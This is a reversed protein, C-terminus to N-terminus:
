NEKVKTKHPSKMIVNDTMRSQGQKWSDFDILAQMCGWETIKKSLWHLNVPKTLYDNCGSILAKRKDDISNSATLAVIIVPANNAKTKKKECDRIQKAAEIGSLVPLQLDMFILHLGGEKWKDVAEKGNKAIKYSIKHKRLFSGLIAQNIVNDEVILVNIKPFVKESTNVNNKDPNNVGITENKIMKLPMPFTTSLPTPVNSINAYKGLNGSVTNENNNNNPINLLMNQTRFPDNVVPKRIETEPISPGVEQESLARKTHVMVPKTDRDNFLVFENGNDENITDEDNGTSAWDNEENKNYYGKPLLLVGQKPYDEGEEENLSLQNADSEIEDGENIINSEIGDEEEGKEMDDVDVDNNNAYHPRKHDNSPSVHNPVPALLNNDFLKNPTNNQFLQDEKMELQITSSEKKYLKSNMNTIFHNRASITSNFNGNGLSLDNNSFILLPESASQQGLSGFLELYIESILQDPDFVIRYTNDNVEQITYNLPKRLSPHIIYSPSHSLSLKGGNSGSNSNIGTSTNSSNYPITLPPLFMPSNKNNGYSSSLPHFGYKPPVSMRSSFALKPSSTSLRQPTTDESTDYLSSSNASIDNSGLRNPLGPKDSVPTINLEERSSNSNNNNNNNNNGNRSNIFVPSDLQANNPFSEVKPLGRSNSRGSTFKTFPNSNTETITSNTREGNNNNNRIQYFGIVVSANNNEAKFRTENLKNFIKTKFDDITDMEDYEVLIPENIDDSSNDIRCWIKRSTAMNLLMSKSSSNIIPISQRKM